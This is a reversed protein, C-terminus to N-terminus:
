RASPTLQLVGYLPVDRLVLEHHGDAAAQLTASLRGDPSHATCAAVPADLRLRVTLEPLPPVADLSEDYDYRLLHVAIGGGGLRHLGVALDVDRDLILQPGGALSATLEREDDLRRVAASLRDRVDPSLNEGLRGTALATGGAGAYDEVLQAQHVTLYRCDPLVITRYRAIDAVTLSDPRLEGEPFILVDYPLAAASLEAGARWFPAAEAEQLKMRNDSTEDSESPRGYASEISYVVAVEAATRRAYLHEHEALFDQIERSLAHPPTFSDEIESGMWAGYPVSMNVGLAAAEYLSMRYRDYGRGRQLMAALEPVVGGYPNEAVIVPKDGAFGAVYRYWDPQRYTTNRMETIILDVSPELPYYHEFLNFFNGSVQV